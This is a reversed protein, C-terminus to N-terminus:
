GKLEEMRDVDVHLQENFIKIFIALGVGAEAAAVTIIFLVLLAGDVMIGARHAFALIALNAANLMLEVCMFLSIANRKVLVGVAGICFLVVSLYVCALFFSQNM